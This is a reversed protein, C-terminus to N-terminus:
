EYQWGGKKSYIYCHDSLQENPEVTTTNVENIMDNILMSTMGKFESMPIILAEHISSPIVILDSNFKDVLQNMVKSSTLYGAGYYFDNNSLIYMPPIEDEFETVDIDRSKLFQAMSRINPRNQMYNFYAREFVADFAKDWARLLDNSVKLCAKSDNIHLVILVIVELDLFSKSPIDQLLKENWDRKILGISLLRDINSYNLIFDPIADILEDCNGKKYERAIRIGINDASNELDATQIYFIPGINSGSECISIGTCITDNVKTMDMETINQDPLLTKLVEVIENIATM